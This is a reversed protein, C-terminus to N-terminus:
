LNKINFHEKAGCYHLPFYPCHFCPTPSDPYNFVRKHNTLSEHFENLLRDAEALQSRDWDEIVLEPLHTFLLATRVPSSPSFRSAALAYCLLQGKYQGARNLAEERTTVLDTKFDIVTIREPRREIKDMTGKLYFAGRDMLFPIETEGSQHAQLFSWVTQNAELKDILDHLAQTIVSREGRIEQNVIAQEIVTDRNALNEFDLFQLVEHVLTGWALAPLPHRSSATSPATPMIGHIFKLEFEKPCRLCTEVASVTYTPKPSVPQKPISLPPNVVPRTLAQSLKFKLQTWNEEPQQDVRIATKREETLFNWLWSNWTDTATTKSKQERTFLYLERRTRTMAVYLLRKSEEQIEKKEKEKLETYLPPDSLNIKIGKISGATEEKFALGAGPDFLFSSERSRVPAYLQPLFVRDFELGKSAHITMIKVEGNAVPPTFLSIPQDGSQAAKMIDSIERLPSDCNKLNTELKQLLIIWQECALLFSKNKLESKLEGIISSFLLSPNLIEKQKEWNRIQGGLRNWLAVDPPTGFLDVMYHTLLDPPSQFSYHEIFNESFDFFSSRLIGIQTILSKDGALYNLIHILDRIVPFELFNEPHSLGVPIGAEQLAHYYVFMPASTRFLLVTKERDEGTLNMSRIKQAIWQAERARQNEIGDIEEPMMVIQVKGGDAERKSILPTYPPLISQPIQSPSFLPEFVRNIAGAVTPPVRFTEDLVVLEGGNQVIRDVTRAFLSVDAKRFRYISQKPDGVIFLHNVQPNALLHVLKAQLPSTDQIEDVLIHFYRKQLQNRLKENDAILQVGAQELGDFDLVGENWKRKREALVFRCVEEKFQRASDPQFLLDPPTQDLHPDLSLNVFSEVLRHFGLRNLYDAFLPDKQRIKETLFDHVRKTKEISAETEDQIRFAPDLGLQVGKQRLLVALFSHITGISLLSEEEPLVIKQELIRELIEGAAKETFTFALIRHLPIKENIILHRFREILVKTKGSGANAIVAVSRNTTLVAKKQSETLSLEDM